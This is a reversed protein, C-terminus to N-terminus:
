RSKEFLVEIDAVILNDFNKTKSKFCSPYKAILDLHSVNPQEYYVTKTLRHSYRHWLSRFDEVSWGNISSYDIGGISDAFEQLVEKPFLHQCYPVTITRYAHLGMPSMYLPGFNLYVYGGKRAVRIAEQLVSEPDAFHEFCNYSFVLDFSEDELQLHAADMELLRVGERMAREDFRECEVDVATAEKGMRQLLCSVMGDLCGLELFKTIRSARAGILRLVERARQRGRRELSHPDYGYAPPEPYEKQLTELTSRELWVPEEPAGEFTRRAGVSVVKAHARRLARLAPKPVCSRIVSKAKQNV